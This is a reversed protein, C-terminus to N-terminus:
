SNPPTTTVIHTTKVNNDDSITFECLNNTTVYSTVGDTNEFALRIQCLGSGTHIPVRSNPILTGANYTGVVAYAVSHKSKFTGALPRYSLYLTSTPSCNTTTIEANGYAIKRTMDWLFVNKYNQEDRGGWFTIETTSVRYDTPNTGVLRINYIYNRNRRLNFNSVNNEGPYVRYDLLKGDHLLRIFLYSAGEPAKGEIRDNPSTISPVIGQMNEFMYFTGTYKQMPSSTFDRLPYSLSYTASYMNNSFYSCRSPTNYMAVNVVRATSSLSGGITIDIDIKVVMRVLSMSFTDDGNVTIESMAAAIEVKANLDNESGASLYESRIISEARNGMDSGINGIAYVRYTGDPMSLPSPLEPQSIYNHYYFAYEDNYIYLNINCLLADGARTSTTAEGTFHAASDFTFQICRKEPTTTQAAELDDYQCSCYFFVTLFLIFYKKM